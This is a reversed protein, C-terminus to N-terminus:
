AARSPRVRGRKTGEANAAKVGRWWAGLTGKEAEKEMYEIRARLSKGRMERDIREQAQRKGAVCDFEKM